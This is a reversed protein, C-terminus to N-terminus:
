PAIAVALAGASLLLCLPSYLLTDRRAFPTGRVRKLFGSYRRDGIARALLVVGVGASGVRFILDPEWGLASGIVLCAAIALLMAVVLTPGTSPTILPKGDVIPVVATTGAKGGFAWYVHIASLLVLVGASIVGAVDIM